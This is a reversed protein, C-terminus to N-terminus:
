FSLLAEPEEPYIDLLRDIRTIRFVSQVPERLGCLVLRGGAAAVRKHTAVVKGVVASSLHEVQTFNLVLRPREGLRQVLEALQQGLKEIVVADLLSPGPLHAVTVTGVQETQLKRARPTPSM